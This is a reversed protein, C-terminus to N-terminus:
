VIRITILQLFQPCCCHRYNNIAIPEHRFLISQRGSAMDDYDVWGTRASIGGYLPRAKSQKSSDSFSRLNTPRIREPIALFCCPANATSLVTLSYLWCFCIKEFYCIVFKYFRPIGLLATCKETHVRYVVVWDIGRQRSTKQSLYSHKWDCCHVFEAGMFM